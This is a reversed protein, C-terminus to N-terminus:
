GKEPQTTALALVIRDLAQNVRWAPVAYNNALLAFALRNGNPATVYGSLARVYELSGTKAQVDINRLRYDLTTRPEGGTALSAMFAESESHAAMNALLTGLAQPTTMDKRSLGSGDRFSLVDTAVGFRSLLAKVRREAGESAGGWGFTHFVQEAYLNNSKKNIISIIESLPPSAYVFLPEAKDYTPKKELDDVDHVQAVVEIGAEQLHHKFAHLAFATPDSVPLFVTGEYSRAVEGYLRVTDTGVRRDLRPAPGRRSRSRIMDNKIRLFGAPSDEVQIDGDTADIRIRALNDHYTLGGKAPAYDETAIYSIDWGEGYPDDEFVDDDGIIRGEIRIVGMAALQQAWQELPDPKDLRRSGFTPDGSGDIILDGHMVSGNVDGDFYL